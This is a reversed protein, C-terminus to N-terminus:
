TGPSTPPLKRWLNCYQRVYVSIGTKRSEHMPQFLLHGDDLCIQGDHTILAIALPVTTIIFATLSLCNTQRFINIKIRELGGIVLTLGAFFTAAVSEFIHSFFTMASTTLPDPVSSFLSM